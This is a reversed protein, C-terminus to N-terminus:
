GLTQGIPQFLEPTEDKLKVLQQKVWDRPYTNVSRNGGDVYQDHKVPKSGRERKWRKALQIGILRLSSLSLTLGNFCEEVARSVPIDAYVLSTSGSALLPQGIIAEKLQLKDREDFRIGIRECLNIRWSWDDAIQKRENTEIGLKERLYANIGIAAFALLADAAQRSPSASQFGYHRLVAVLGVEPIGGTEGWGAVDAPNFGQALLSRACPLPIEDAGQFSASKLSRSLGGDDIGALAAAARVSIRFSGDAQHKFQNPDFADGSPSSPALM